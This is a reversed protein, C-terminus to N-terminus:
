SLEFSVLRGVPSLLLNEQSLVTKTVAIDKGSGLFLCASAQIMM